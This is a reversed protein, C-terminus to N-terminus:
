SLIYRLPKDRPDTAKKPRMAALLGLLSWYSHTDSSEVGFLGVWSSDRKEVFMTAISRQLLTAQNWNGWKFEAIKLRNMALLLYLWPFPIPGYQVMINEMNPLTVEQM